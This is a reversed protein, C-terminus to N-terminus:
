LAKTHGRVQTSSLAKGTEGRVKRHERWEKLVGQRQAKLYSVHSFMGEKEESAKLSESWASCGGIQVSPSTRFVPELAVLSFAKIARPIGRQAAYLFDGELHTEQQHVSFEDQERQCPQTWGWSPAVKCGALPWKLLM